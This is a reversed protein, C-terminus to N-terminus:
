PTFTWEQGVLNQITESALEAWEAQLAAKLDALTSGAPKDIVRRGVEKGLDTRYEAVVRYQILNGQEDLKKVAEVIACKM